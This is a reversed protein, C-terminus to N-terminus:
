GAFPPRAMVTPRFGYKPGSSTMGIGSGPIPMGGLLNGAGESEAATITSVPLPATGPYVVASSVNWAPPVSLRGVSAAAGMARGLMAPAGSIAAAAPIAASPVFSKSIQLFDRAAAVGFNHMGFTNYIFSSYPGFQTLFEQLGKPFTDKGFLFQWLWWLPGRRSVPRIEEFMGNRHEALGELLATIESNVIELRDQISGDSNGAASTVAAAQAALGDPRAVKPAAVFPELISAASSNAAYSYMTSVNHAWMEFYQAELAAITGDNQRFANTATAKALDGRNAAILPPPVVAAFATEFAAAAAQAQVAAREAAISMANMWELYPRVASMMSESAAGMWQEEVRQVLHGCGAAASNLEAALSNWSSAANMLSTSGPGSYVLASTVEPPLAGFDM